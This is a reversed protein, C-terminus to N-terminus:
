RLTHGSGPGLDSFDHRRMMLRTDGVATLRSSTSRVQLKEAGGVLFQLRGLRIAQAPHDELELVHDAENVDHCSVAVGSRSTDFQRANRAVLEEIPGAGVLGVEDDSPAAEALRVLLDVVKSAPGDLREDVEGWADTSALL